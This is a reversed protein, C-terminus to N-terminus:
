IFLKVSVNGPPTSNHIRVASVKLMHLSKDSGVQDIIRSTGIDRTSATTIRDRGSGM